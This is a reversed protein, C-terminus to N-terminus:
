PKNRYITRGDTATLNYACFPVLKGAPSAIHICCGQLRELNLNWCDQFAMASLSFTHTRARNLFRSLDDIPQLAVPQQPTGAWQRATWDISQLAGAEAHQPSCNCSPTGLRILEGSEQQLYRASFSCLAHECGPPTFDTLAFKSDSQDVLLRMLEPLTIQSGRWQEPYRGFLAVPQFHVGRVAPAHALGFRCIQWLQYENIGLVVTAVLIIGLGADIMREIATLKQQYLKRGRLELWTYDTVGDFQLFVSTLGAAQLRLALEPDDAFRLGNTNLQVFTFGAKKAAEVIAPLDPHLTPEGGSLQLNCGGTKQYIDEFLSSLVEVTQFSPTRGSDAFCVPCNLNCASTIEVLVTCTRQAHQPCLGCDYPCNSGSATQREGGYFPIKPRSWEHFHPPGVWVPVQFTGHEPCTKVMYVKNGEERLEASVRRLCNPCVSETYRIDCVSLIRKPTSAM